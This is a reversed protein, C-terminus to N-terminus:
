KNFNVREVHFGEQSLLELLNEPGLLHGVGVAIFSPNFSELSPNLKFMWKHNRDILLCKEIEKTSNKTNIEYVTKEDGSVYAKELEEFSVTKEDLIARIGYLSKLDECEQTIHQEDDLSTIVKQQDKAYQTLTLDLAFRPNMRAAYARTVETHYKTTDVLSIYALKPSWHNIEDASYKNKYFSNIKLLFKNWYIPTLQKKLGVSNVKGLKAYFSIEAALKNDESELDYEIFVAESNKLDTLIQGPLDEAPIGIHMTGLIHAKQDGKTASYYFPKKLTTCASLSILISIYVLRM